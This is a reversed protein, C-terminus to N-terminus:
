PSITRINRFPLSQRLIASLPVWAHCKKFNKKASVSDKHEWPGTVRSKSFRILNPRSIRSKFMKMYAWRAIFDNGRISMAWCAIFDNGCISLWCMSYNEFLLCFWIWILNCNEVIFVRFKSFDDLIGDLLLIPGFHVNLFIESVKCCFNTRTHETVPFLNSCWFEPFIL